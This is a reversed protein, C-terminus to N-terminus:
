GLQECGRPACVNFGIECWIKSWGSTTLGATFRPISNKGAPDLKRVTLVFRRPGGIFSFFNVAYSWKEQSSAPKKIAKRKSMGNDIAAIVLSEFTLLPLINV